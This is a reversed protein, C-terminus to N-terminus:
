FLDLVSDYRSPENVNQVFGFDDLMSVFDDYLSPFGCGFKISPM